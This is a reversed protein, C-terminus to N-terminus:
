AAEKSEGSSICWKKLYRRASITDKFIRDESILEKFDNIPLPSTNLTVISNIGADNASKIGLPVNEVILAENSFYELNFKRTNLLNEVFYLRMATTVAQVYYKM